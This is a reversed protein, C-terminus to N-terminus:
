IITIAIDYEEITIAVDYGDDTTVEIRDVITAIELTGTEWNGVGHTSSLRTDIEEAMEPLDDINVTFSRTPIIAMSDGVAPVYPLKTKVTIKKTLSNYTQIKRILGINQGSLFLLAARTWYNVGIETLDTVFAKNTDAAAVEFTKIETVALIRNLKTENDDVEGIVASTNATANAETALAAVNAKYDNKETYSNLGSHLEAESMAGCEDPYGGLIIVGAHEEIANSAIYHYVTLAAPAPNFSYKFWGTAGIETMPVANVIISDDSLDRVTVGVAEGTTFRALIWPNEVLTHRM